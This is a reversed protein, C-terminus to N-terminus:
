LFRLIINFIINISASFLMGGIWGYFIHKDRLRKKDIFVIQHDIEKIYNHLITKHTLPFKIIKTMAVFGMYQNLSLILAM